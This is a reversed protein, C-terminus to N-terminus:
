SDSILNGAENFIIDADIVNDKEEEVEYEVGKKYKEENAIDISIEKGINHKDTETKMVEFASEINEKQWDKHKNLVKYIHYLSICDGFINVPYTYHKIKIPKANDERAVISSYTHIYIRITNRKHYVRYGEIKSYAEENVKDHIDTYNNIIFGM